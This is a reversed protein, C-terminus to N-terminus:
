HLGAILAVNISTIINQLNRYLPTSQVTHDNQLTYNAKNQGDEHALLVLEYILKNQGGHCM